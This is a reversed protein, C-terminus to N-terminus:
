KNKTEKNPWLKTGVPLKDKNYIIERQKLQMIIERLAVSSLSLLSSIAIFLINNHKALKIEKLCKIVEIDDRDSSQFTQKEPYANLLACPKVM